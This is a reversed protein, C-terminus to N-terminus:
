ATPKKAPAWGSESRPKSEPPGVRDIEIEKGSHPGGRVRGRASFPRFVTRVRPSVIAAIVIGAVIAVIVGVSVGVAIAVTNSKKAQNPTTPATADGAFLFAISPDYWLHDYHLGLFGSEKSCLPLSFYLVPISGLLPAGELTGPANNAAQYILYAEDDAVVTREFSVLFDYKPM